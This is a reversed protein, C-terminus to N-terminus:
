RMVFQCRLSRQNANLLGGRPLAAFNWTATRELLSEEQARKGAHLPEGRLDLCPWRISIGEPLYTIKTITSTPSRNKM